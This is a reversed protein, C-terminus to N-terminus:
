LPLVAVQVTVTRGFALFILSLLVVTESFFFFLTTKFTVYVGASLLSAIVQFLLLVLTALTLELPLTVATPAPVQVIVASVFYLWLFAVHLTLTFILITAKVNSSPGFREVVTRRNSPNFDLSACQVNKMTPCFMDPLSSM